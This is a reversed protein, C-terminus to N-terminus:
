HSKVVSKTGTPLRPSYAVLEGDSTLRFARDRWNITNGIFGYCWLAFSLLDRAPVLWFLKQAVPDRLHRIGIFWAMVLRSIWTLGLVLWGLWSAGTALWFLLSSVTGYTFILGAYGWPRSVRIGVMWRLQRQLAGMVTSTAMVHEIIHHSLVVRYGAQAPLHGLQFDDALHNAIVAFGGIEDLVSRRIVITQGMAFKIGELRNSVLIGPHFETASSLAEFNTLWGETLSRYPCTVVGVDPQSLPQVVQQLYNPTVQVDSDSLIIIDHTANAFANALNSVKRSTGITRDNVVLQLDLTPFDRMIQKITVISADDRDHVAFIIQYTPYDQKCFSALTEYAYRDRGCVPKLISVPPQFHRDVPASQTFFRQAAVIAYSYYGIAALSLFLPIFLLYHTATWGVSLMDSLRDSATLSLLNFPMIM